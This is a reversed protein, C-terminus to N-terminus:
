SDNLPTAEQQTFYTIAQNVTQALQILWPLDKSELYIDFRGRSIRIGICEANKTNCFDSFEKVDYSNIGAYM